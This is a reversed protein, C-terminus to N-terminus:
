NREHSASGKLSEKKERPLRIGMPDLRGARFLLCINCFEGEAFAAPSCVKRIPFLAAFWPRGNARGRITAANLLTDWICCRTRHDWRPFM